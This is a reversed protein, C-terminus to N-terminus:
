AAILQKSQGKKDKREKFKRLDSEIMAKLEMDLAKLVVTTQTSTKM